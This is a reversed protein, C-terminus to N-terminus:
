IRSISSLTRTTQCGDAFRIRIFYSGLFYFLIIDILNIILITKMIITEKKENERDREKHLDFLMEDTCVPRRYVLHMKDNNSRLAKKNTNTTNTSITASGSDVTTEHTM